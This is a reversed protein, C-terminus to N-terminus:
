QNHYNACYQISCYRKGQDSGWPHDYPDTFTYGGDVWDPADGVWAPLTMCGFMNLSLMLLILIRIM